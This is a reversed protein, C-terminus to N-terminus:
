DELISIGTIRKKRQERILEIYQVDGLGYDQFKEILASVLETEPVAQHRQIDLMLDSDKNRYNLYLEVGKKLPAPHIVKPMTKDMVVQQYLANYGEVKLRFCEVPKFQEGVIHLTIPDQYHQQDLWGLITLLNIQCFMDADFWCEISTFNGSFLSHLPKLTIDAYQEPTVHHVMARVEVFEQSFLEGTTNGYCMAENFPIMREQELFNTKNFYNYMEQGNLIHLPQIQIM